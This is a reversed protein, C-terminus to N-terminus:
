KLLTERAEMKKKKLDISSMFTLSNLFLLFIDEVSHLAPPLCCPEFRPLSVRFSPFNNLYLPQVQFTSGVLSIGLPLALSQHSSPHSWCKSGLNLYIHSLLLVHGTNTTKLTHPIYAHINPHMCGCVSTSALPPCQTDEEIM